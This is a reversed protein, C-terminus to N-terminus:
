DLAANSLVCGSLLLLLLVKARDEEPIFSEIILDRLKLQKQLDRVATTMDERVNAAETAVDRAEAQAERWKAFVKKLKKRLSVVEEQLSSYKKGEELVLAQQSELEQKLRRELQEREELEAQARKLELEQQAARDLVDGGGVLQQEM